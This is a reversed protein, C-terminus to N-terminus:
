RNKKISRFTKDLTKYRANNKHWLRNEMLPTGSSYVGAKKIDKCVLSKATITVHDAITLHGLIGTSGSIQCYKGIVASGAIASSAAIATHAGIRVNHAIQIQNDMKVGQDIKTDDLAGRDVTTNAGIEVDDAIIVSGLHPVQLWHKDHFVLGFGDAGIVVGSQFICNKGVCVDFRLTVRPHLTTGSDIKVGSEIICGAAIRVNDGIQVNEGIVVYELITVKKGIVASKAIQATPHRFAQNKDALEPNLLQIARVFHYQPDETAILVAKNQIKEALAKSTIVAACLSKDLQPLYKKSNIFCIDDSGASGFSAPHLIEIDGDGTFKLKLQLALKSLKIKM